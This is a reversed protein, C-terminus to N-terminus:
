RNMMMKKIRWFYLCVVRSKHFRDYSTITIGMAEGAIIYFSWVVKDGRKALAYIGVSNPPWKCGIFWLVEIAILSYLDFSKFWNNYRTYIWCM